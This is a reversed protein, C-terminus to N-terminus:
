TRGSLTCTSRSTWEQPDPVFELPANSEARSVLAPGPRAAGSGAPRPPRKLSRGKASVGRLRTVGSAETQCAASVTLDVDDGLNGKLRIATSIGSIGGGIIAVRIKSRRPAM